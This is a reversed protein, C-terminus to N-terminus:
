PVQDFTVGTNSIIHNLRIFEITKVPRVFFDIPIIDPQSLDIRVSWSHISGNRVGENLDDITKNFMPFIM